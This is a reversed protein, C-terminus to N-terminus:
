RRQRKPTITIGAEPAHWRGRGVRDITITLAARLVARKEELTFARWAAVPDPAALLDRVVPDTYVPTTAAELEAIQAELRTAIRAGTAAPMRGEATETEVAELRERLQGLRATAAADAPPSAALAEAVEPTVIMTEVMGTVVTDITSMTRGLHRDPCSLTSVDKVKARELKAGCVGCSAIGTLLYKVQHGRPGDSRAAYLAVLNEHTELDWIAAWTGPGTIVPVAHRTDAHTRFGAYVPNCLRKKLRSMTWEGVNQSNLWRVVSRSSQGDLVRRAAEHLLPAEVPHPVRETAKGTDPDRVIRYGFPRRGHPKGAALNARHARLIRTRSEEAAKESVLIDLGTSFRDDGDALDYVKGSYSWLAHRETLLERLEVYRELDRTARSAEWMVLVDGPALLTRLKEYEPRDKTAYRSASRDNDCLAEAVPWGRRECEARCEAEQERVSRGGAKDSSVRTYIIARRPTTASAATSM